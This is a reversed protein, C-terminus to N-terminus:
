SEDDSSSSYNNLRRDTIQQFLRQPLDPTPQHSNSTSLASPGEKKQTRAPKKTAEKVEKCVKDLMMLFDRVVVFLHLGEDKGSNGHFYDGTSKVLAMIRKEEDLLSMVDVEANQVFSKLTQLFESEEEINKMDSNLFERTKSLAHGLKAVTGTLSDADLVAAKKVNELQNGLGSIVQLGLSRLHDESEHNVEEVLDDSKMSSFSRSERAVRSARVGESRIIEQVVFHLLTTKGDVGKVDSLKLLTDLKFAKAGGRFTGDNMRNGTKLVAELLKLFLQSNRLEKCAVELTEFSEKTATVEELLTCMFLLAELRKYAFPINVLAKLFREAPGLQSLEGNFLRLKLEEDQTPAMKLLTQILEAPLENGEKLADCVEDITVNLARLLIALNQSKKPDIIQVHQQTSDQSSEKRCENKNKDVPTYGFLTEIMEENFQFSGSKIQHWVMSHDPNALVKDWFFPKLKAKPADADGGCGAGESSATNSPNKSGLPPLSIKSGIAMPPPPRPAAPGIKPPPPPRPGPPKPAPPPPPGAGGSSALLSPPPVPRPPPPPHGGRSSPPKYTTPPEPPLPDARGPPPKLPPLGSPATGLRGPPPKLFSPPAQANINSSTDFSEDLPKTANSFSPPIDLSARFNNSKDFSSVRKPHSSNSNYLQNAHVQEKITDGLSFSKHSSSVCHDSLSLCLLPSEDNRKAGFGTKHLGSCCLFLLAAIVFTVVATVVVAIIVTKHNSKKDDVSSTSDSSEHSTESAPSPPSSGNSKPPFFTIPPLSAPTQSEPAQSGSPVFDPSGATPVPAPAPAGSISGLNRRFTDPRSYSESFKTFWIKPCGEGSFEFLLNNKRICDLFTRMLQPHLVNILKQITEKAPSRSKSGVEDTSTSTEELSCLDFEKAVEKLHILELKCSMWLVEAMDDHVEGTIPDVLQSLFSEETSKGHRFSAILPIYLIIVLVMFWSRKIVGM